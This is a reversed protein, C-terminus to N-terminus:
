EIEVILLQCTLKTHCFLVFVLVVVAVAVHPMVAYCRGYHSEVAHPTAVVSNLAITKRCDTEGDINRHSADRHSNFRRKRTKGNSSDSLLHLMAYASCLFQFRFNLHFSIFNMYLCIQIYHMPHCVCPYSNIPILDFLAADAQAIVVIVIVCVYSYNTSARDSPRIPLLIRYVLSLLLKPVLLLKEPLISSENFYVCVCM